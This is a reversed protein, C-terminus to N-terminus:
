QELLPKQRYNCNCSRSTEYEGATCGCTSSFGLFDLDANECGVLAVKSETHILGLCSDTNRHSCDASGDVTAFDVTNWDGDNVFAGVARTCGCLRSDLLEDFVVANVDYEAGDRTIFTFRNNLVCQGGWLDGVDVTRGARDAHCERARIVEEAEM